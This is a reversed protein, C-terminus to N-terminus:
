SNIISSNCLFKTLYEKHVISNRCKRYYVMLQWQSHASLIKDKQVSIQTSNYKNQSITYKRILPNLGNIQLNGAITMMILKAYKDM